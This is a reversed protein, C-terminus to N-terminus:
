AYGMVKIMSPNIQSAYVGDVKVSIVWKVVTAMLNLEFVEWCVAYVNKISLM